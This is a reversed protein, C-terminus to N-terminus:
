SIRCLDDDILVTKEAKLRSVEASEVVIVILKNYLFCKYMENLEESTLFSKLNVFIFVQTGILSSKLKVYNIIKECLSDNCEDNIRVNFSKLLQKFDPSDSYEVAVSCDESISEIFGCFLSNIENRKNMFESENASNEFVSYMKSLISKDNETIYLYDSIIEAYKQLNIEEFNQSFIVDSKEGKLRMLFDNLFNIYSKKNEIIVQLVENESFEVGEGFLPYALINRM